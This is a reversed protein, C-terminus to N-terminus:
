KHRCKLGLAAALRSLRISDYVHWRWQWTMCSMGVRPGWGSGLGGPRLVDWEGVKSGWVRLGMMVRSGLWSIGRVHSSWTTPPVKDHSPHPWVASVPTAQTLSGAMRGTAVRKRMKIMTSLVVAGLGVWFSGSTLDFNRLCNHRSWTIGEAEVSVLTGMVKVPAAAPAVPAAMASPGTPHVMKPVSSDLVPSARVHSQQFGIRCSVVSAGDAPLNRRSTMMSSFTFLTVSRSSGRCNRTSFMQPFGESNIRNNQWLACQRKM